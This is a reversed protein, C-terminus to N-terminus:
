YDQQRLLEEVWSLGGERYAHQVRVEIKTVGCYFGFHGFVERTSFDPSDVDARIRPLADM